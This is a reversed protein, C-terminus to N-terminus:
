KGPMLRKLLAEKRSRSVDVEAGDSMLLTGGEGRSYKRVEDLNVLCSHHVRLFRDEELMEEIEKLTRSIVLKQTDKLTFVTYNSSANCYLITDVAIIQLGDLTPLAIRNVGQQPQHYRQLLLEMQQQLSPASKSTVKKVAAKLEEVDVPKLLYDLASFRIAKIAYQDYSTTFICDFHIPALMELVEFGNLYPMEIDLFVLEPNLERIITVAEKANNILALVQVDPCHKKLLTALAQCAYPEDDVIVAKIM